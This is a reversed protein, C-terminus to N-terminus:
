IIKMWRTLGRDVWPRARGDAELRRLNKSLFARDPRAVTSGGIDEWVRVELRLSLQLYSLPGDALDRLLRDQILRPGTFLGVFGEGVDHLSRGTPAGTEDVIPRDSEEKRGIYRRARVGAAGSVDVTGDRCCARLIDAPLNVTFAHTHSRGSADGRDLFIVAKLNYAGSLIMARILNDQTVRLAYPASPHSGRIVYAVFLACPGVLECIWDAWAQALTSIQRGIGRRTSQESDVKNYSM